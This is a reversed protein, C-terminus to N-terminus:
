VTQNFVHLEYCFEFLIFCFICKNRQWQSSLSVYKEPILDWQPGGLTVEDIQLLCM